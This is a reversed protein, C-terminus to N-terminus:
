APGGKEGEGEVKEKPIRRLAVIKEGKDDLLPVWEASDGIEFGLDKYVWAPINLRVGRSKVEKAKVRQRVTFGAM